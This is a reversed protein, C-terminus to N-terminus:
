GKGGTICFALVGFDTREDSREGYEFSYLLESYLYLWYKCVADYSACDTKEFDCTVVIGVKEFEGLDNDM